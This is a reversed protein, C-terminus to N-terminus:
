EVRTSATMLLSSPNVQVCARERVIEELGQVKKVKTQEVKTCAEKADKASQNMDFHACQKLLTEAVEM